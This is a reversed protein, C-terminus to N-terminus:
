LTIYKTYLINLKGSLFKFALQRLVTLIDAQHRKALEIQSLSTFVDTYNCKTSYLSHFDPIIVILLM